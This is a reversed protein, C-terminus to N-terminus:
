FRDRGHGCKGDGVTTGHLRWTEPAGLCLCDKSGKQTAGAEKAHGHPTMCAHLRFMVQGGAM